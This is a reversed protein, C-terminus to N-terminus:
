STSPIGAHLAPLFDALAHDCLGGINAICLDPAPTIGALPLDAYHGQRVFLTTLREGLTQKMEALLAPKDDVMVYHTAPYRQQMAGLSHQKHVCVLVEGHLADWLGARQIKRPQFVIDGDSLIVTPGLTRLHAIM